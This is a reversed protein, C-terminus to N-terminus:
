GEGALTGLVGNVFAGSKATSYTKAIEVAESIVVAMPTGTHRLEYLALRLISRDVAPMRDVRWGRAARELEADIESRAAWAGTVLSAARKGLGEVDPSEVGAADAAYLAEFAAIRPEVRTV